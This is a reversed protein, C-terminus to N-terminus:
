LHQPVLCVDQFLRISGTLLCQVATCRKETLLSVLWVRHTPGCSARTPLTTERRACTPPHPSRCRLLLLPAVTWTAYPKRMNALLGLVTM